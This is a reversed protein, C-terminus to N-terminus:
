ILTTNCTIVPPGQYEHPKNINYSFEAFVLVVSLLLASNQGLRPKNPAIRIYIRSYDASLSNKSIFIFSHINLVAFISPRRLLIAILLNHSLSITFM